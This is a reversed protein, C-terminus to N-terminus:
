EERDDNFEAPYQAFIDELNGTDDIAGTIGLSWRRRQAKEAVSAGGHKVRAASNAAMAEGVRDGASMGTGNERAAIGRLEKSFGVEEDGRGGGISLDVIEKIRNAIGEDRM